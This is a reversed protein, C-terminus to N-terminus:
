NLPVEMLLIKSAKKSIFNISKTDSIAIADRRLLGQNELTLGGEIIFIYLGHNKNKLEYTIAKEQTFEGLYFYANQYIWVGQGDKNPSLIQYLENSRALDKITKQDYRPEVGLRNPQIWIQLLNVSDSDSGNFESHFVGSGASMVQIEGAKISASNGMSDEHKLIGSLMLTIIEMNQHPHKGFGAGAAIFDDNIVRLKGFGMKNPDYYDGFSFSHYSDLWDHNVHGRDQAKYLEIKM